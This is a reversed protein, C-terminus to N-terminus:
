QNDKLAEDLRLYVTAGVLYVAAIAKLGFSFNVNGDKDGIQLIIKSRIIM